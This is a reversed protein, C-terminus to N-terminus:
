RATLRFSVIVEIDSVVPETGCTAPKFKWKQLTNLTSQDMSRSASGILQFDTATGDAQVTMSVISDGMSGNRSASPPYPPDPTKIPKPPLWNDCMRREIAGEPKALLADNFPVATLIMVTAKVVRSGNELLQLSRPFRHGAFDVYDSFEERTPSDPLDWWTDSVIDASSNFCVQHPSENSNKKKVRVCDVVAGYETLTQPKDAVLKESDQGFQLLQLLQRVRVPTSNSNRQIYLWGGDRVEIQKYDGMQVSRWWHDKEKWKLTLHGQSPLKEQAAFEVDLQYSRPVDLSLDSRQKASLLVQQPSTAVASAPLTFLAGLLSVILLRIL